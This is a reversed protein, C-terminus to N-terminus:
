KEQSGEFVSFDLCFRLFYLLGVFEAEMRKGNASMSFSTMVLNEAHLVILKTSNLVKLDIAVSGTVNHTTINPHITLNYSLPVVNRPLRFSKWPFDKCEPDEEELDDGEDEEVTATEPDLEATTQVEVEEETATTDVEKETTTEESKRKQQRGRSKRELLQQRSM